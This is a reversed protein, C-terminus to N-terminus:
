RVLRLEHISLRSNSRLPEVAGTAVFGHREYLRRAGDNGETVSLFVPADGAFAVAAGLLASAVGKGRHAPDTWMSIVDFRRRDGFIGAVGVLADGERALFMAQGAESASREAWGRWWSDPRAVAEAHTTGFADPADALARLRVERLERWEDLRVRRVDVV